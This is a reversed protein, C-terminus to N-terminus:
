KGNSTNLKERIKSRDYSSYYLDNLEPFYNSVKLDILSGECNEINGCPLSDKNMRTRFEFKENLYKYSIYLDLYQKSPIEIRNIEGKIEIGEDILTLPNISKKTLIIDSYEPDTKDFIVKYFENESAKGNWSDTDYYWSHNHLFKYRVYNGKGKKIGLIKAYSTDKNKEIKTEERQDKWYLFVMIFALLLVGGYKKDIALKM